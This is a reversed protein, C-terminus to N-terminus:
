LNHCREKSSGNLVATTDGHIDWLVFSSVQVALTHLYMHLHDRGSLTDNLVGNYIEDCKGWTSHCM